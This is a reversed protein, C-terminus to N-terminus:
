LYSLRRLCHILNGSHECHRRDTIVARVVLSMGVIGTGPGIPRYDIIRLTTTARVLAAVGLLCSKVRVDHDRRSRVLHASM